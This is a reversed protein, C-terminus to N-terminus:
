EAKLDTTGGQERVCNPCLGGLEARGKFSCGPTICILKAPKDGYSPAVGGNPGGDYGSLGGGYGSPGGGYGSPGGGYGGPGGGYGGPGGGNPAGAYSPQYPKGGTSGSRGLLPEGTSNYALGTTMPELPARKRVVDSLQSAHGYCVTFVTLHPSPERGECAFCSPGAANGKDSTNLRQMTGNLDNARYPQQGGADPRGQAGYADPRGQAGYADPRGQVGYADPRGQAGYADPRGYLDTRGYADPRGPVIDDPRGRAVGSSADPYYDASGQRGPQAKQQKQSTNEKTQEMFCGHCLGGYEPSGCFEHCKSCSGADEGGRPPAEQQKTRPAPVPRPQAAMLPLPPPPQVKSCKSCYFNTEATGFFECDTTRCRRREGYGGEGARVGGSQQRQFADGTHANLPKGAGGDVSQQNKYCAQCLGLCQPLGPNSCSACKITSPQSATRAVPPPLGSTAQPPVQLEKKFCRSCFGQTAVDGYLGCGSRCLAKGSRSTYADRGDHQHFANSCADIFGAILTSMYAPVKEIKLRACSIKGGSAVVMEFDLYERILPFPSEKPHMFKVPLEHGNYATLPLHFENRKAEDEFVVLASFHGGNFALSLPDKTCYRADWLLPLYIGHFSGPQLTYGAASEVQASSYMIIPRKLINSLVFVHFEELSALSIGTAPEPSSQQVVNQWERKWQAAELEYSHRKNEDERAFKWRQYLTSTSDSAKLATHVARRLIFDRDQFGWMALSAAHLLCNGDGSTYLPILKALAPSWNLCRDGEMTDQTRKDVIREFTFKQFDPPYGSLSPLTFTFRTTTNFFNTGNPVADPCWDQKIINRCRATTELNTTSISRPLEPPGGKRVFGQYHTDDQSYM